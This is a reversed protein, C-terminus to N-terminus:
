PPTTSSPPSASVLAAKLEQACNFYCTAGHEISRRSAEDPQVAASQFKCRARTEWNEIVLQLASVTVGHDHDMPPPAKHKAWSQLRKLMRETGFVEIVITNAEGYEPHDDYELTMVLKPLSLVEPGNGTRKWRMFELVISFNEKADIFRTLAVRWAWVALIVLGAILGFIGTCIAVYGFQM